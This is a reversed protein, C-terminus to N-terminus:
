VTKRVAEMALEGAARMGRRYAEECLREAERATIYRERGIGVVNPHNQNRMGEPTWYWVVADVEIM